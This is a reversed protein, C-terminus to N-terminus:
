QQVSIRITRITFDELRLYRRLLYITLIRIRLHEGLNM